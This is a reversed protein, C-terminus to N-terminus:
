RSGCVQPTAGHAWSRELVMVSGRATRNGAGAVLGCLAPEPYVQPGHLTGPHGGEHGAVVGGLLAALATDFTAFNLGIGDGLGAICGGVQM